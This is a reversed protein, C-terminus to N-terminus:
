GFFTRIIEILKELLNIKQKTIGDKTYYRGNISYLTLSPYRDQTLAHLASGFVRSSYIKQILKKKFSFIALRDLNM